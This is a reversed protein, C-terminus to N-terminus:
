YPIYFIKYKAICSLVALCLLCMPIVKTVSLIKNIVTLDLTSEVVKSVAQSDIM